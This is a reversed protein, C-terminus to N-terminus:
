RVPSIDNIKELLATHVCDAVQRGHQLLSTMKFVTSSVTDCTSNCMLQWYPTQMTVTYMDGHLSDTM